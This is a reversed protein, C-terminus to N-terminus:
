RKHAQLQDSWLLQFGKPLATLIKSAPQLERTSDQACCGEDKDTTPLLYSLSVSVLTSNLSM